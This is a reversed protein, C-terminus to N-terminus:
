VRGKWIRLDGYDPDNLFKKRLDPDTMWDHMTKGQVNLYHEINRGTRMDWHDLSARYRVSLTSLNRGTRM